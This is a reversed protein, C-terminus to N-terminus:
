RGSEMEKIKDFTAKLAEKLTSKPPASQSNKDTFVQWRWLWNPGYDPEREVRVWRCGLAFLKEM